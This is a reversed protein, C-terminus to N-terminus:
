SGLGGEKASTAPEPAPAPAPATSVPAAPVAAGAAPQPPPPVTEDVLRVAAELLDRLEPEGPEYRAFKVLDCRMLFDALSQKQSFVLLPSSQLEALFEETTREPARLDFREELYLRLTDSVLICFPRPQHILALAEQLKRRAREHPPITIQAPIAKPRKLWYRLLTSALAVVAIIGLMWWIWIGSSIPVPGKIDRIDAALTANTGAANTAVPPAPIIVASSNTNM